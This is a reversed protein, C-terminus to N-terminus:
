RKWGPHFEGCYRCKGNASVSHRRGCAICGQPQWDSHDAMTVTRNLFPKTPDIGVGPVHNAREERTMGIRFQRQPLPDWRM